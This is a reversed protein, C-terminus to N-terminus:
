IILKETWETKEDTFRLKWIMANINIKQSEHTLIFKILLHKLGCPIDSLSISSLGRDIYILSRIDHCQVEVIMDQFGTDTRSLLVGIIYLHTLLTEFVLGGDFFGNSVHHFFGIM